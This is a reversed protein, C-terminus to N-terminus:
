VGKPPRPCPARPKRYEERAAHFDPGDACKLMEYATQLRVKLTEVPIGLRAAAQPEPLDDLHRVTVALRFSPRLKRIEELSVPPREGMRSLAITTFHRSLSRRMRGYARELRAHVTEVPVDYRDAIEKRSLNERHRLHLLERDRESLAGLSEELVQGMEGRLLQTPAGPGPSEEDRTGLALRTRRANVNRAIGLLWATLREPRLGGQLGELGAVMAEQAVDEADVSKEGLHILFACVRGYYARYLEDGAAPDGAIWRGILDDM